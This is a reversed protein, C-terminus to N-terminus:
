VPIPYRFAVGNPGPIIWFNDKIEETQEQYQEDDSVLMYYLSTM